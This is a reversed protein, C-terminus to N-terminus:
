GLRSQCPLMFDGKPQQYHKKNSERKPDSPPSQRWSLEDNFRYVRVPDGLDIKAIFRHVEYVTISTIDNTALFMASIEFRGASIGHIVGSRNQFVHPRPLLNNKRYDFLFCRKVECSPM